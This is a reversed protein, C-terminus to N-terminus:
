ASTTARPGALASAVSSGSTLNPPIFSVTSTYGFPLLFAYITALVFIGLSWQVIAWKGRRLTQFTAILDISDEENEGHSSAYAPSEAPAVPEMTEAM